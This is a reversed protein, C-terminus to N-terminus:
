ESRRSFLFAFCYPMTTIGAVMLAERIEGESFFLNRLFKKTGSPGTVRIIVPGRNPLANLEFGLFPCCEREAVILEAALRIWDGGVSLRFCYGEELGKTEIVGSKFRSLLKAERSRLEASTLSCAVLGESDCDKM